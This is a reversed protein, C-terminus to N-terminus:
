KANELSEALSVVHFVGKKFNKGTDDVIDLCYVYPNFNNEEYDVILDSEAIEGHSEIKEVWSPKELDGSGPLIEAVAFNWDKLALSEVVFLFCLSVITKKM